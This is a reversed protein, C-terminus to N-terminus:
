ALERLQDKSLFGRTGIWGAVVYFTARFAIRSLKPASAILDTECGDDFTIAVTPVHARDAHLSDGISIGTFGAARIANLQGSFQEERVVYRTYGSERRCTDRGPLELEHYM